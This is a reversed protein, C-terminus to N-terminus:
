PPAILITILVSFRSLHLDFIIIQRSVPNTKCKPVGPSRNVLVQSSMKFNCRRTILFWTLFCSVGDKDFHGLNNEEEHVTKEKLIAIEPTTHGLGAVNTAM